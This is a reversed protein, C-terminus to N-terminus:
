GQVVMRALNSARTTSGQSNKLEDGVLHLAAHQRAVLRELQPGAVAVPATAVAAVLGDHHVLDLSLQVHWVGRDEAEVDDALSEPPRRGRVLWGSSWARRTGRSSVM